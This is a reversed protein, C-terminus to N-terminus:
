WAFYLNCDHFDNKDTSSALIAFGGKAGAKRWDPQIMMRNAIWHDGYRHGSLVYVAKQALVVGEEPGLRTNMPRPTEWSVVANCRDAAFSDIIWAHQVPWAYSRGFVTVTDKPLLCQIVYQHEGQLKLKEFIAKSLPGPAIAHAGIDKTSGNQHDDALRKAADESIFSPKQWTLNKLADRDFEPVPFRKYPAVM